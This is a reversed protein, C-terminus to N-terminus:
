APFKHMRLPSLLIPVAQFDVIFTDGSQRLVHAPVYTAVLLRLALCERSLEFVNETRYM